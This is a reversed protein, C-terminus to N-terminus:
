PCASSGYVEGSFLYSTILNKSFISKVKVIGKLFHHSFIFHHPHLALARLIAEGLRRVGVKLWICNVIYSAARMGLIFDLM